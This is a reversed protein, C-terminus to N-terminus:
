EQPVFDLLDLIDKQKDVGPFVEKLRLGQETLEFVCRETVYLVRQGRKLAQEASFSISQVENKIKPISGEQQITIQGNERTVMLGKSRFNFCFVVVPTASTINAFGGIGVYTDGRKHVNVNGHRDVELAGMFCIDLGGGDYFDFQTATDVIIDAGITAGFAKGPAPLGGIGGAEVTLTVYRLMDTHAAAQSVSEPIGIGINIIDGKKLEQLGREGIIAHSEDATKQKKAHAATIKEMWYSMHAPPVHIAGSLTANIMDNQPSDVVVVADVLVGPIVVNRPRSYLHTVMDVQAIVYGGNAKAAQACALADLNLYENDFTLNGDPDVATAKIFAVDIKPLEYYLYEEDKIEVLSVMDDISIDNMSPGEHRPDVYIGLGTKSLCGKHGAAMARVAHCIAGYPLVYGEIENNRIKRLTSPMSGYHSAVVRRVAGANVYPEAKGEETYDGYGAACMLTLNNPHGTQMFRDYIMKHLSDPNSLTLFANLYICDGDHILLAAEEPSVIKM